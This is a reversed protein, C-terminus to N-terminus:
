ASEAEMFPPMDPTREWQRLSLDTHIAHIAHDLTDGCAAGFGVEVGDVLVSYRVEIEQQDIQDNFRTM